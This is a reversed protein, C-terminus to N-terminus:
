EPKIGSAQIIEGMKKYETNLFARFESPSNAAIIIGLAALRRETEPDRMARVLEANLRKVIAEPTKAPAFIGYWNSLSYTPLGAEAITPVNPLLPSRATTTVAVARLQNNGIFSTATTIADFMLDIDGGILDTHAQTGRYTIHSMKVDALREFQATALHNSTGIGVTGYKLIGPAAKAAAILSAVNTIKSDPRVVIVLPVSGMLTVPALDEFKYGIGKLLYHNIVAAGLASVLLTHGDPTAKAVYEAAVSGGAGSRNEVVVPHPLNKTATQAVMRAAVDMGIGPNFGVLFRIPRDPFNQAYACRCFPIAVFALLAIARRPIRSNLM